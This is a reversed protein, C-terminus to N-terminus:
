HKNANLVAQVSRAMMLEENTKIVRVAVRSRDKSIILENKFNAKKDLDIGLFGLGQCIRERIIASNQGIGGTFVLIDLGDMAAALSGIYKKASYCFVALAEKAEASESEMNLLERVDSVGAIAQLGSRKSLLDELEAPTMNYQNLLFLLVGPDLDGSRTGMVLGGMPSVGMTTDVSLGNKVAAMSAGNGLHTIIIKKETIPTHGIALEQMIYEYSLGHFGYKFLGKEKYKLPLPYNKAYSPMNRHFSTDFCAIQQVDPYASQFAQITSIESPLHNPALYIYQQLDALLQDTIKEPQRHDPGGQVLRHGIADIQYQHGNKKLWDIVDKVGANFNEYHTFRSDLIQGSSDKIELSAKEEGIRNINGTLELDTSVLHYLSFKLSSSGCNISLIYVKSLDLM